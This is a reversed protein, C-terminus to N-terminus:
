FQKQKHAILFGPMVGPEASAQVCDNLLHHKVKIWLSEFLMFHLFIDDAPSLACLILYARMDCSMTKYHFYIDSDDRINKPNFLSVM